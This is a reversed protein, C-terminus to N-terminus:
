CNQNVLFTLSLSRDNLSDNVVASLRLPSISKVLRLDQLVYTHSCKSTKVRYCVTYWTQSTPSTEGGKNGTAKPTGGLWGSTAAAQTQWFATGWDHQEENRYEKGRGPSFSLHKLTLEAFIEEPELTSKLPKTM